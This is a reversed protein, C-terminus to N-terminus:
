GINSHAGKQKVRFSFKFNFGNEANITYDAELQGLLTKILTVGLTNSSDFVKNKFGKGNDEYVAQIEDDEEYLGIFIRGDEMGEFAHKFSNTILENILLGLPIAQNINLNNTSFEYEINVEKGREEFMNRIRNILRVAYEEFTIETFSETNYLLEHVGSISYIRNQTENLIQILEQEKLGDKQLEILGIIIALNNKVRHHIESLLVEKEKVSEELRNKYEVEKTIDELIALMLRDNGSEGVIHGVNLRFMATTGDKRKREIEKNKLPQGMVAKGKLHEFNDRYKDSVHPMFKGMVEERKWGLMEEAAKNWFDRVIGNTDITYIAMPSSEILARIKRNASRTSKQASYATVMFFFLVSVLLSFLLGLAPNLYLSPNVNEEVFVQNPSLRFMWNGSHLRDSKLKVAISFEPYGSVRESSGYEYFVMGNEDRLVVNYQDMGQMIADFQSSFDMGATITGHFHDDFYLPEDVLFAYNGQVLELWHTFNTISDRKARLWDSRRYDLTSIDLGIASENGKIPEVRRIVMSSDIWEIFKFASNQNIILQADYDWYDFYGGNTEEIRSKLNRLSNVSELTRKQFQQVVLQGTENIKSTQAQRSEKQNQLWLIM